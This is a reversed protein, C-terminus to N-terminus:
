PLPGSSERVILEPKVIVQRPEALEKNIIQILMWAVMSGFQYAPQHVTTLAPHTYEALPIDDFGTISVDRGVVLGRAQAEGIAGLALLDNSAVIATPPNPLDLLKSASVRGSRQRYNSEIILDPEVPLGHAQLGERYGQLRHFAKTFHLPEAIFALRTHGLEVLHDVVQRIGYAGDEDVLCFDNEGEVRGFAVFPVKQRRLLDIRSDQRQTRMIVFGDTRRSRIHKLYNDHENSGTESSVNLGFGLQAAQDVLGALFESFFPDSFRVGHTIPLILTINDARQRQLSRAAASPEYGMERAVRQVEQRTELSIDDFDGLARSVTPVSKGVRQAIDKLTVPM